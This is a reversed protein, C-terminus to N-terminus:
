QAPFPSQRPWQTPAPPRTWRESSVMGGVRSQREQLLLDTEALLAQWDVLRRTEIGATLRFFFIMSQIMAKQWGNASVVFDTILWQGGPNLAETLRPLLRNRLTPATFLDLVFPTMIVDFYQDPGLTTEDGLLFEITGLLQRDLVRRIARAIMQSSTELYTIRGTHGRGLLPELLWGTGGGVILVSAEAPIRDLFVTQARELSRGFVVTKLGDYIPAIWNFNATFLAVPHLTVQIQAAFYV